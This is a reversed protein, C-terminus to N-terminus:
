YGKTPLEDSFMGMPFGFGIVWESEPADKSYEKMLDILEDVTKASELSPYSSFLAYLLPHVHADILGPMLMGGNIDIHQTNGGTLSLAHKKNGVYVIKGEDFAVAEVGKLDTATYISGGYIVGDVGKHDSCASILLLSVVILLIISRDTSPKKIQSPM